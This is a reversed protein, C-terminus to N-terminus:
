GRYPSRGPQDRARSGRRRAGARRARHSQVRGGALGLGRVLRHRTARSPRAAHARGAERAAASAEPRVQPELATFWYLLQRVTFRQLAARAVGTRQIPTPTHPTSLVITIVQAAPDQGASGPETMPAGGGPLSASGGLTGMRDRHARALVEDALTAYAAAAASDPANVVVPRGNAEAEVIAGDAAIPKAFVFDGFEYEIKDRLLRYLTVDLSTNEHFLTVLIGLLKVTAGAERHLAAVVSGLQALSKLSYLRPTVPAILHTAAM